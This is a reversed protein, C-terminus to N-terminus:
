ALDTRSVRLTRALASLTDGRKVTYWKLSVLEIDGGEGLRRNVDDSAALQIARALSDTTNDAFYVVIRAAPVLM